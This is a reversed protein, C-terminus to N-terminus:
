VEEKIVFYRVVSKESATIGVNIRENTTDVTIDALKTTAKAEYMETGVSVFNVSISDSIKTNYSAISIMLSKFDYEPIDIVIESEAFVLKSGYRCYYAPIDKDGDVVGSNTVAKTGIRIDNPTANLDVKEEGVLQAYVTTEGGDPTFLYVVKDPNELEDILGAYQVIKDTPEKGQNELAQKIAQKEDVLIQLNGAITEM